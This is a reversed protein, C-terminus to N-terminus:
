QQLIRGYYMLEWLHKPLAYKVKLHQPSLELPDLGYVKAFEGHVMEEYKTISRLPLHIKVSNRMASDRVAILVELDRRANEFGYNLPKGYVIADYLSIWADAVAVEDYDALPYSSLPTQFSLEPQTPVEAGIVRLVGDAEVTKISIKFSQGSRFSLEDGKLSAETGVVEWYNGQNRNIEYVGSVGNFLDIEARELISDVAPFVGVLGEVESKLISRVAAIGHYSGTVYSLYFREVKGLVGSEVIKQKLREQPWRPVNESVELYVDNERAAKIMHDACAVTIAIPTETLIHVGKQALANAIVHHGEAQVAILCADLNEGNLMNELDNYAKVGFEEAVSRVRTVDVDCVAVLRYRDRLKLLVSIHSRARSGTGIVGVNLLRLAPRLSNV